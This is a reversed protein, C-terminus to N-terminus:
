RRFCVKLLRIICILSQPTERLAVIEKCKSVRWIKKEIKKCNRNKKMIESKPKFERKGIASIM